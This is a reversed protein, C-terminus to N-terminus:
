TKLAKKTRLGVAFFNRLGIKTTKITFGAYAAQFILDFVPNPPLKILLRVLPFFSPFKVALPFFRQLNLMERKRELKLPTGSLLYSNGFDKLSFDKELLGMSVARAALATGPYIRLVSCWAYDAELRINFGVTAFADELTEGPIGIMNYTKLLIGERKIARCASIISADKLDKELVENRIREVGSEVGLAIATCGAAKLEKITEENLLDARAECQFPLRVKQKYEALFRKLWEKDAVFLDDMIMVAGLGYNDRVSCIEEIARGVSPRRVYRGKGKYLDRFETNFCFSCRYPCGRTFIFDKSPQERLLKYEYYGSRDQVPFSDLDETLPRLQNRIIEAGKKFWLNRIAYPDKGAGLADLLEVLAEEGEGRCVIDVFDLAIIEEAYFTVHPGGCIVPVALEKKVKEALALTQEHLGSVLSFGVLDPRMAKLKGPLDDEESAILLGAQHGAKKVCASLSMVGARSIPDLQIFVIKM